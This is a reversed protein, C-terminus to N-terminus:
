DVRLKISKMGNEGNIQVIYIGKILDLDFSQEAHLSLNTNWIKQGQMDYITFELYKNKADIGNINLKSNSYLVELTNLENESINSIPECSNFLSFDFYHYNVVGNEEFCLSGERYEPIMHKRNYWTIYNLSGIGTAFSLNGSIYIKRYEGALFQYKIDSVINKIAFFTNITDGIKSNEKFAIDENGFGSSYNLYVKKISDYRVFANNLNFYSKSNFVQTLGTNQFVVSYKPGYGNDNDGWAYWKKTPSLLNNEFCKKGISELINTDKNRLVCSLNFLIDQANIYTAWNIPHFLHICGISEVWTMPTNKQNSICKFNMIWLSDNELKIKSKSNLKMLLIPSTQIKLTDGITLNYDMILMDKNDLIAYVKSASDRIYYDGFRRYSHGFYSLSDVSVTDVHQSIVQNFSLVQYVWEYTKERSAFSKQSQCNLSIVLWGIIFILRIM